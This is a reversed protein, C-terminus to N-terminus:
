IKKAITRIWRSKAINVKNSKFKKIFIKETATFNDRKNFFFILIFNIIFEIKELIKNIFYNKPKRILHIEEGVYSM